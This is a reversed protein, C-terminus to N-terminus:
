FMKNIPITSLYITTQVKYKEKQGNYQRDKQYSSESVDIFFQQTLSSFNCFLQNINIALVITLIVVCDFLSQSKRIVVKPDEFSEQVRFTL